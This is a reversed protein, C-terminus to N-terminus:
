GTVGCFVKAMGTHKYECAPRAIRGPAKAASNSYLM